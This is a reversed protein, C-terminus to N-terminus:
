DEAYRRRRTGDPLTIFEDEFGIFENGVFGEDARGPDGHRHWVPGAPHFRMWVAIEEERLVDIALLARGLDEGLVPAWHERIYDLQGTLSDPSALMPAKLAELLTGLGSEVPPRTVFYNPLTSTAASYITGNKLAEDGFLLSFSAFAPNMNALWLLIMEEFATERNSLDGTQGLLWKEATVENRFVTVSPFQETFALLLRDRQEPGIKDALFGLGDRLVLPDTKKRYKAILAHSLEDILGMAFLAAGSITQEPLGKASDSANLREALKRSAAVNAFVVNGTFSFLLDDLDIQERISRSIHFEMSREKL